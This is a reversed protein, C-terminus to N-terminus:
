ILELGSLATMPIRDNPASAVSTERRAAAQIRPGLRGADGGAGLVEGAVAVDGDVGVVAQGAVVGVPVLDGRLGQRREPGGDLRAHAHDHAAAEQHGGM